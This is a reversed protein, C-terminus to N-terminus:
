SELVIFATPFGDNGRVLINNGAQIGNFNIVECAGTRVNYKVCTTKNFLKTTRGLNGCKVILMQDDYSIAEVEGYYTQFIPKSYGQQTYVMMPQPNLTDFDMELWKLNKDEDLAYSLVMGKKVDAIRLNTKVPDGNDPTITEGAFEEGEIYSVKTMNGSELQYAYLKNVINGDEDTVTTVRDAILINREFTLTASTTAVEQFYVAAGFRYVENPDYMDLGAAVSKTTNIPIKSKDIIKFDKEEKLDGPVSFVITKPSMSYPIQEQLSDGMGFPKNNGAILNYGATWDIMHANFNGQASAANPASSTVGDNTGYRLTFKLAKSDNRDNPNDDSTDLYNIKGEADLGFKVLRRNMGEFINTNITTIKGLFDSIDTIKEGDLTVKNSVDYTEMKAYQTFLKVKASSRVESADGGIGVVYGYTYGSAGAEEIEAILGSASLYFNGTVGPKAEVAKANGSAVFQKYENSLYYIKGDIEVEEGGVGSITGKVFEDCTVIEILKGDFSQYIELVTGGAITSLDSIIGDAGHIIVSYKINEDNKADIANVGHKLYIVSKSADVSDVVATRVQKIQILEYRGNYDNDYFYLTKQSGTLDSIAIQSKDKYARGNLLVTFSPDLTIINTRNGNEYSINSLTEYNVVDKASIELVTGDGKEMYIITDNEYDNEAKKVFCVVNSFILDRDIANDNVYYPVNSIEITDKQAFMVGKMTRDEDANWVGTIKKINLHYEMVTTDDVFYESPKGFSRQQVKGAFLANYILEIASGKTIPTDVKGDVNKLLKLSNALIIYSNPFNSFDTNYGNYGIASIVIKLAQEYTLWDEPGFEGNEYGSVLGLNSAYVIYPTAWYIYPIDSFKVEDETVTLSDTYGLMKMVYTVFEARTININEDFESVDADSLIGLVNLMDRARTHQLEPASEEILVVDEAAIDTALVPLCGLIMVISIIIATLKRLTKM